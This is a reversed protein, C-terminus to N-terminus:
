QIPLRVMFTSGQGLESEVEIAGGHLEVIRCASSLGIGTGKIQGVTNAARHFQEFIHPLDAAPIGIGQDRVKLIAWSGSEADERTVTVTVQGRDPSYKIANSLLNGLVRELRIPDWYGFLEPQSAEVQISHHTTTQQYEDAVQRALAVLNVSQRNLTLPQGSQLRGFDVLEDIMRLM